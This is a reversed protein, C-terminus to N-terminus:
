NDAYIGIRNGETDAIVAFYGGCEAEIKKRPIVVKGGKQVVRQLTAAIDETNFHILVGKESPTFDPLLDSSQSIAGVTEDGENFCAMKEQGCEYVPLKVNLVTEYFDVARYFDTVPIEFFAILKKM